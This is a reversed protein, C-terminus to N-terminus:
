CDHDDSFISLTYRTESKGKSTRQAACVPSESSPHWSRSGEKLRTTSYQEVPTEAIAEFMLPSSCSKIVLVEQRSLGAPELTLASRMEKSFQITPGFDRDVIEVIGFCAEM